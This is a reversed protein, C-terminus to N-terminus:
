HAISSWRMDAPIDDAGHTRASEHVEAESTTRQSRLYAALTPTESSKITGM